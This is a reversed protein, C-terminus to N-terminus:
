KIDIMQNGAAEGGDNQPNEECLTTTLTVEPGAYFQRLEGRVLGIVVVPLVVSPVLYLLAPQAIGNM